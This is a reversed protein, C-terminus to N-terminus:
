RYIVKVEIILKKIIDFNLTNVQQNKRKRAM